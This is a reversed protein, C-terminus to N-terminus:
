APTPLRGARADPLIVRAPSYGSEGICADHQGATRSSSRCNGAPLSARSAVGPPSLHEASAGEEAIAPAAYQPTAPQWSCPQRKPPRIDECAAAMKGVPQSCDRAHRRASRNSRQASCDPVQAAGGTVSRWAVETAPVTNRQPIEAFSNTKPLWRQIHVECRLEVQVVRHKGVAM